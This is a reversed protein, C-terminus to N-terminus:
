KKKTNRAHKAEFAERAKKALTEYLRAFARADSEVYGAVVCSEGLYLVSKGDVIIDIARQGIDYDTDIFIQREGKEGNGITLIEGALLERCLGSNDLPISEADRLIFQGSDQQEQVIRHVRDATFEWREKFTKEVGAGHRSTESAVRIMNASIRVAMGAPLAGAAQGAELLARADARKGDKRKTAAGSAQEDAGRASSCFAIMMAVLISLTHCKMRMEMKQRPMETM